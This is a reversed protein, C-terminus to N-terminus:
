MCKWVCYAQLFDNGCNICLYCFLGIFVLERKGLAFWFCLLVTGESVFSALLTSILKSKYYPDSYKHVAFERDEINVATPLNIGFYDLNYKITASDYGMLKAVTYHGGEHFICISPILLLTLIGIRILPLIKTTNVYQM